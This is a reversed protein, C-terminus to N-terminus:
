PSSRAGRSKGTGASHARRRSRPTTPAGAILAVAQTEATSPIRFADDFLMQRFRDTSFMTGSPNLGLKVNAGHLWQVCRELKWEVSDLAERQFAQLEQAVVTRILGDSHKGIISLIRPQSAMSEVEDFRRHAEVFGDQLNKETTQALERLSVQVKEQAARVDRWHTEQKDKLRQVDENMSKYDKQALMTSESLTEHTNRVLDVLSTRAEALNESTKETLKTIKEFLREEVVKLAKTQQFKQSTLEEKLAQLNKDEAVKWTQLEAVEQSVNRVLQTTHAGMKQQSDVTQSLNESLGRTIMRLDTIEKSHEQLRKSMHEASNEQLDITERKQSDLRDSLTQVTSQMEVFDNGLLRLAQKTGAADEAAHQEHNRSTKRLDSVEQNLSKVAQTLKDEQMQVNALQAQAIQEEVAVLSTKMHETLRITAAELNATQSNMQQRLREIVKDHVETMQESMMAQQRRFQEELGIKVDTVQQAVGDKHYRMQEDVGSTITALRTDHQTARDRCEIQLAALQKRFDEFGSECHATAAKELKEIADQAAARAEVLGKSSAKAAVELRSELRAAVDELQEQAVKKAISIERSHENKAEVIESCMKSTLNMQVESCREHLENLKERVQASSEVHYREIAEIQRAIDKRLLEDSQTFDMFAVDIRSAKERVESVLAASKSFAEDIWTRSQQVAEASLRRSQDNAASTQSAIATQLTEMKTELEHHLERSRAQVTQDLEQIRESCLKQVQDRIECIQDTLQLSMNQSRQESTESSERLQKLAHEMHEARRRFDSEAMSAKQAQERLQEIKSKHDVLDAQQRAHTDVISGIQMRLEKARVDLHEGCQATVEAIKKATKETLKELQDTLNEEANKLNHTHQLRCDEFEQQLSHL